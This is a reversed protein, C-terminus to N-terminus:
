DAHPLPIADRVTLVFADVCPRDGALRCAAFRDWDAQTVTHDDVCRAVDDIRTMFREIAQARWRDNDLDTRVMGVLAHVGGCYADFKRVKDAYRHRERATVSLITVEVAIAITATAILSAIVLRHNM